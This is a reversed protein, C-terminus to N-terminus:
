QSKPKKKPAKALSQFKENAGVMTVITQMALDVWDEELEPLQSFDLMIHGFLLGQIMYTVTHLDHTPNIWGRTRLIELSETFFLNGDVQATRIAEALKDNHTASALVQIRRRRLGVLEQTSTAKMLEALRAFFEDESTATEALFRFLKNDNDLSETLEELQATYILGFKSGFHHYLSSRAAESRELVAEVDFNDVGNKALEIRAQTMLRAMTEIGDSRKPTDKPTAM